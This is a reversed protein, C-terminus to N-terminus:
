ATRPFPVVIAGGLVSPPLEPFPVDYTARGLAEADLYRRTMENVTHGYTPALSM